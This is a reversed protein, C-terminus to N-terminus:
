TTQHADAEALRESAIRHYQPSLEVGVFRRGSQLAAVGTSGAGAFPDLVTGADPVIRVLEDLLGTVPKQTIHRRQRGRPQSASFIGPLYLDRDTAYKGNSGWLIYEAASRFGGRKPRSIPKHWVLTGQWLWGAAQLADSTAPLQRWDTFVLAHGGPATARLCHSLVLSLWAVYGRQDRQDGTFDPFTAATVSDSSVYKEVATQQRRETSSRGGSNYPPDAIVAEVSGPALTPLVALADGCHLEYNRM